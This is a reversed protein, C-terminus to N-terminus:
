IKAKDAFLLKKALVFIFTIVIVSIGIGGVFPYLFYLSLIFTLIIGLVISVNKLIDKFIDVFLGVFLNM